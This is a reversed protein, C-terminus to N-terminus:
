RLALTTDPLGAGTISETMQASVTPQRPLCSCAWTPINIAHEWGILRQPQRTVVVMAIRDGGDVPYKVVHAEPGLWVGTNPDQLAQPAKERSVVARAAVLGSYTLQFDPAVIQRVKSWLGDCGIVLQGTATAGDTAKVTVQSTQQDIDQLQFGFRIEIDDSARAKALLADYLAPKM